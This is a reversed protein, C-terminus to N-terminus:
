PIITAFYAWSFIAVGLACGAFFGASWIPALELLLSKM